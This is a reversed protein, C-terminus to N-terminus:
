LHDLYVDHVKRIINMGNIFSFFRKEHKVWSCKKGNMTVRQHHFNLLAAAKKNLGTTLVPLLREGGEWRWDEAQKQKQLGAQAEEKRVFVLWSHRFTSPEEQECPLAPCNVGFALELVGKM